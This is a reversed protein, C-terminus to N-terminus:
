DCKGDEMKKLKTYYKPDEALHDKAIERAKKRDNTHEFEIEIGMEIQKPDFDKAPRGDALGGPIYDKSEKGKEAKIVITHGENINISM